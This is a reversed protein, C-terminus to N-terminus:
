SGNMAGVLCKFNCCLGLHGYKVVAQGVLMRKRCKPNICNGLSKRNPKPRHTKNLDKLNQRLESIKGEIQIVHNRNLNTGRDMEAKLVRIRRRIATVQLTKIASEDKM